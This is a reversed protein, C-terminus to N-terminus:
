GNLGYYVNYCTMGDTQNKVRDEVTMTVWKLM